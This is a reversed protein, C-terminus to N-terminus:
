SGRTRVHGPLFKENGMTGVTWRLGVPVERAGALDRSDWPSLVTSHLHTEVEPNLTERPRRGESVVLEEYKQLLVPPTVPTPSAPAM